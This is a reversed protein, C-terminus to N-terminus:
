YHSQLKNYATSDQILEYYQNYLTLNLLQLQHGMIPVRILM